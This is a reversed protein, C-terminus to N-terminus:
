QNSTGSMPCAKPNPPAEPRVGRLFDSPSTGTVEKFTRSLVHVSSFGCEAAIQTLSRDTTLLLTKVQEIRYNRLFHMPPSEYFQKFLSSFHSPSLHVAAALEELTIVTAFDRRIIAMAEEMARIHRPNDFVERAQCARLLSALLQLFHGRQELRAATTGHGQLGIIRMLSELPQEYHLPRIIPDLALEPCERRIPQRFLHGFATLEEAPRFSVFVQEADEREFFDFHIHPLRVGLNDYCRFAHEAGPEILLFTGAELEETRGGMEVLLTGEAVCALYHDLIVRRGLRYGAPCRQNVAVRFYPNVGGIGDAM